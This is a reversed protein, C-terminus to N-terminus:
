LNSIDYSCICVDFWFTFKLFQVDHFIRVISLVLICQIYLVECNLYVVSISLTIDNQCIIDSSKRWVLQFYVSTEILQSVSTWNQHCGTIVEWDDLDEFLSGCVATESENSSM